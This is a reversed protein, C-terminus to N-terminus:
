RIACLTVTKSLEKKSALKKGKRPGKAVKAAPKSKTDAM